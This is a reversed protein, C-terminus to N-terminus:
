DAVGFVVTGNLRQRVSENWGRPWVWLRGNAEVM